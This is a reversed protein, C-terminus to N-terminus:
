TSASNLIGKILKQLHPVAEKEFWPNKKLWINNRGSPHPIPFYTPLYEAYHEVNLTLNRKRNKGLYYKQAYAGALIILQVDPLLSLIQKHWQPACEKRPPLDGKDGTGPYCFGMPILSFLSSDYFTEENVGMWTRLRDGSKDNWAINTKHVIRGPAQGIILISSKKGVSLVPKCGLPLHDKCINCSRIEKLKKSLEM